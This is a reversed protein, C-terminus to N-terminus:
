DIGPVLHQDGGDGRSISSRATLRSDWRRCTGYNLATGATGGLPVLNSAASAALNLFFARSPSLGPLVAAIAVTQVWLGVSAWNIGAVLPGGFAVLALGGAAPVAVTGVRGLRHRVALRVTREVM